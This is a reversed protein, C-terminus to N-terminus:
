KCKNLRRLTLYGKVCLSSGEICTKLNERLHTKREELRHFRALGFLFFGRVTELNNTCDFHTDRPKTLKKDIIQVLHNLYSRSQNHTFLDCNTGTM